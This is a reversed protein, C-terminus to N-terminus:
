LCDSAEALINTIDRLHERHTRLQAMVCPVEKPADGGCNTPNSLVPGQLRARIRNSYGEIAVINNGIDDLIDQINAVREPACMAENQYM